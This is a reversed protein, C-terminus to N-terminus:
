DHTQSQLSFSPSTRAFAFAKRYSSHIGSQCHSTEVMLSRKDRKVESHTFFSFSFFPNHAESHRKKDIMEM